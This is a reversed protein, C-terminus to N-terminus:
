PRLLPISEVGVGRWWPFRVKWTGSILLYIYLGITYSRVSYLKPSYIAPLFKRLFQLWVVFFLTPLLLPRYFIRIDFFYYFVFSVASSVQSSSAMDPRLKFEMKGRSCLPRNLRLLATEM